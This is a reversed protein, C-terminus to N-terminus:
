RWGGKEVRAVAEREAYLLLDLRESRNLPRLIGDLAPQDVTTWEPAAKATWPEHLEGAASEAAVQESVLTRLDGLLDHLDAATASEPPTTALRLRNWWALPYNGEASERLTSLLKRLVEEDVSFAADPAASLSGDIVVTRGRHVERIRQFEDELRDRSDEFSSAGAVEVEVFRVRDCPEFEAGLVQGDECDVRVCGKAGLEGYHPSRGQPTGPFVIYPSGNEGAHVEHQHRHGLAWYDLGSSRLDDFSAADGQSTNGIPAHVLGIQIGQSEAAGRLAELASGDPLWRMGHITALGQPGARDKGVVCSSLEGFSDLITTGAPLRQVGDPSSLPHTPDNAGLTLVTEIGNAHLRQLGHLLQVHARLPWPEGSKGGCLDGSILVFAVEREVALDVISEFAELSADRLIEALAPPTRSIGQMPLDLHLDSTHLFSYKM